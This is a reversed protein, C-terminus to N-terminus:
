KTNIKNQNNISSKSINEIMSHTIKNLAKKYDNKLQLVSKNGPKEQLECIFNEGAKKILSAAEIIMDREHLSEAKEIILRSIEILACRYQRSM